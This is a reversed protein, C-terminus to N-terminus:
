TYLQDDFYTTKELPPYKSPLTHVIFIQRIYAGKGQWGFDYVQKSELRPERFEGALGKIKSNIQKEARAVSGTPGNKHGAGGRSTLGIWAKGDKSEEITVKWDVKWQTDDMKIEIKTIEPNKGFEKYFKELATNVKTNMKGGFGDSKRSQFSHMGDYDGPRPKYSGEVVLKPSMTFEEFLKIFPEM